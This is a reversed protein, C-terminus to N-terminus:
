IMVFLRRNVFSNKYLSFEIHPLTYSHGHSRVSSLLKKPRQTPLRPHLCHRHDSAQHFLKTDTDHVLDDIHFVDTSFWVISFLETAFCRYGLSMGRATKRHQKKQRKNADLKHKRLVQQQIFYTVQHQETHLRQCVVPVHSKSSSRITSSPSSANVDRVVLKAEDVVVVLLPPMVDCRGALLLARRSVQTTLLWEVLVGNYLLTSEIIVL